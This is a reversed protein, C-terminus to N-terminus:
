ILTLLIMTTTAGVGIVWILTRLFPIGVLYAPIYAIRSGLYLYACIQTVQTSQESLTVVVVAITFLILADFHNNFAREFRGTMGILEPVKDRPGSTVGVGLQRVAAFSLIWLHLVQLLAAYALITLEITM